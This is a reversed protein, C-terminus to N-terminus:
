GRLDANPRWSPATGAIGLRRVGTGDPRVVYLQSRGLGDLSQFAILSGNPSFAPAWEDTRPFGTLHRQGSGDARMLWVDGSGSRNSSFAIHRGDPSWAPFGDDGLEHVGGGTRTLRRLGTGDPRIVYLEPNEPTRLTSSFAILRGDPSFAPSFTGGQRDGGAIRRQGTGDARMVYLEFPGRRDSVFAISQGDPSWAPTYDNGRARTLRRVDTGDAAAVYIDANGAPERVFLFREGDPSWTPDGEYARTAILRRLGTGDIRVAYIDGGRAFALEAAPRATSQAGSASALSAVIATATAAAIILSKALFSM